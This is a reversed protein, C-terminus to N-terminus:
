SVIFNMLLNIKSCVMKSKRSFQYRLLLPYLKPSFYGSVNRTVRLCYFREPFFIFIIKMEVLNSKVNGWLDGWLSISHEKLWGLAGYSSLEGMQDIQASVLLFIYTRLTFLAGSIKDVKWHGIFQLLSLNFCNLYLSLIARWKWM